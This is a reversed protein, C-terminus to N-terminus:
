VYLAEVKIRTKLFQNRLGTLPIIDVSRHFDSELLEKIHALAFLGPETMDVVTDLDSEEGSEGRVFSGFLGQKTLGYRRELGGSQM